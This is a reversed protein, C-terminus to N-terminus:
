AAKSETYEVTRVKKGVAKGVLVLAYVDARGAANATAKATKVASEPNIRKLPKRKPAQIIFGKAHDKLDPVAALEANLRAIEKTLRDHDEQLQKLGDARIEMVADLETPNSCDLHAAVKRWEDLEAKLEDIASIIPDAGGDDPDLGLHKNIAGLDTCAAHFLRQNEDARQTERTCDARKEELRQRLEEINRNLDAMEASATTAMVKAANCCPTDSGPEADEVAAPNTLWYWLENGKGKKKECEVEGYTRMTNLVNNITAQEDAYGLAKAISKAIDETKGKLHLRIQAKIQDIKLQDIM